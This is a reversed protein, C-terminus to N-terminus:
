TEKSKQTEVKERVEGHVVEQTGENKKEETHISFQLSITCNDNM